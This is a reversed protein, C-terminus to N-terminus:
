RPSALSTGRDRFGRPGTLAPGKRGPAAIWVFGFGVAEARRGLLPALNREYDVDIALRSGIARQVAIFGRSGSPLLPGQRSVFADQVLVTDMSDIAYALTFSPAFVVYSRTKGSADAGAATAAVLSTAVSLRSTLATGVNFSAAYTPIGNTFEGTGNPPSYALGASAQTTGTDAVLYKLAVVPDAAGRATDLSATPAALRSQRAPPAVGLELRKAVGFRVFLLPGSALTVTGPDATIQRRWGSEVVLEGPPAVCPSGGTSTTRGTGPRDALTVAAPSVWPATQAPALAGNTLVFAAIFASV